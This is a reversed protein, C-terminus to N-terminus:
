ERASSASKRLTAWGEGLQFLGTVGLAVVHAAIMAQVALVYALAQDRTFGFPPLVTVAVYQYIGVYAPTSPLASGLGLATVFMLAVPFSIALGLARATIMAGCVDATWIVVTLGAFAAFRRADHFARLGLMVQALLALLKDRLPFKELVAEIHRHFRPLLAVGLAAATAAVALSRAVGEMWVPKQEVTLLAVASFLILAIADTVREGLATTLVFPMSLRTKRSILFARLVEGARAPLAQNGLYGAMLAWLVTFAPVSEEASLLIRWRLARIFSTIVALTLTGALYTWRAGALMQGVARWDVGRLAFYLLVAALAMALPLRYRNM